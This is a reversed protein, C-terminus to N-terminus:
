WAARSGSMKKGWNEPVFTSNLSSLDGLPSKCSLSSASQRPPSQSSAQGNLIGVLERRRATLRESGTSPSPSSNTYQQGRFDVEPCVFTKQGQRQRPQHFLPSNFSVSLLVLYHTRQCSLHAFLWFSECMMISNTTSPMIPGLEDGRGTDLGKDHSMLTVRMLLVSYAEWKGSKPSLWIVQKPWCSALLLSM